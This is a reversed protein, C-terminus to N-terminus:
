GSSSNWKVLSNLTAADQDNPHTTPNQVKKAHHFMFQNHSKQCLWTIYVEAAFHVSTRHHFPDILCAIGACDVPASTISDRNINSSNLKQTRYMYAVHNLQVCLEDVGSVGTHM